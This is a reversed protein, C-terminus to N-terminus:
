LTLAMGDPSCGYREKMHTKVEASPAGMGQELITGWADLVMNGHGLAQKFEAVKGIPLMLYFFMKPNKQQVLLVAQVETAILEDQYSKTGIM